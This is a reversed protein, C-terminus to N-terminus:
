TLLDRRKNPLIEGKTIGSMKLFVHEISKGHLLAEQLADPLHHLRDLFHLLDEHVHQVLLHLVYVPGFLSRLFSDLVVGLDQM